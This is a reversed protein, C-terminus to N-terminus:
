GADSNESTVNGNKDYNRSGIVNGKEDFRTVERYEVSSDRFYAVERSGDPLTTEKKGTEQTSGTGDTCVKTGDTKFTCTSIAGVRDRSSNSAFQIRRGKTDFAAWDPNGQVMLKRRAKPRPDPNPRAVITLASRVPGDFGLNRREPGFRVKKRSLPWASSRLSLPSLFFSGSWQFSESKGM